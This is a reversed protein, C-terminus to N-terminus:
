HGKARLAAQLAGLDSPDDMRHIMRHCNPCLVAFDTAVDYKVAEGERLSALPVLHHAEIFDKGLAGYKDTMLLSCAQCRIGHHAKALKAARPNREIRRHMRYRREEILDGSGTGPSTNLGGRFTLARYAEVTNQLDRHLTADDPMAGLRYTFGLAHGAAYGGPLRADSGLEIAHVPFRSAYDSLRHRMFAAREALVQRTKKKTAFEQEVETAGQNLSLHVLPELAHFLYVVYYGRMAGDTVLPDFLGVWPVTAWTSQGASGDVILDANASGIARRAEAPAEHRLVHGLAHGAFSDGKAHPYENIIRELATALSLSDELCCATLCLAPLAM